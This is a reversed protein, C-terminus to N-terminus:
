MLYIGYTIDKPLITITLAVYDLYYTGLYNYSKTATNYFRTTNLSPEMGM